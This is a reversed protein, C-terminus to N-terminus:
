ATLESGNADRHGHVIADRVMDRIICQIDANTDSQGTERYQRNLFDTVGLATLRDVNVNSPVRPEAAPISKLIRHM